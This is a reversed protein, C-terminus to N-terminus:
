SVWDAPAGFWHKTEPLFPLVGHMLFSPVLYLVVAVHGLEVILGASDVYHQNLVDHFDHYILHGFIPMLCAMIIGQITCLVFWFRRFPKSRSDQLRYDLLLRGPWMERILYTTPEGDEEDVMAMQRDEEGDVDKEVEDDPEENCRRVFNTLVQDATLRNGDDDKFRVKEQNLVRVAVKEPIVRMDKLIRRAEGPDEELYKSLPLLKDEVDYAQWLFVMFVIAPGVYLTAARKIDNGMETQTPSVFRKMMEVDSLKHESWIELLFHFCANCCCWCLLLFLPDKTPPPNHFDMCAKKKLLEYYIRHILLMRSAVILSVSIALLPFCRVYAKTYECLIAKYVGCTRSDCDMLLDKAYYIQVVIMGLAILQKGTSLGIEGALSLISGREEWKWNKEAPKTPLAPDETATFPSARGRANATGYM